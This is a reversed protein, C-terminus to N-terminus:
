KMANMAATKLMDIFEASLPYEITVFKYVPAYKSATLDTNGTITMYWMYANLLQGGGIDGDHYGDGAHPRKDGFKNIDIRACLGGYPLLNATENLKRAETWAAGSNVQILDYPKNKDFEETMYDCIEQMGADYKPGDEATYTYDGSVRGIEFFWTRHWLLQAHPHLEHFRDLLPEALEVIGNRTSERKDLNMYSGGSVSGQLSIYDWQAWALAQELSWKTNVTNMNERGKASTKFLDYNATGEKWWKYHQSLSCGSYYLNYIEVADIGEPPNEMLLEYLEEVYYYCFSNGVMLIRLTSDPTYNDKQAMTTGETTTETNATNGCGTFIALLLIMVLLICVTRKM